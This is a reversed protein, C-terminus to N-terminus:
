EGPDGKSKDCKDKGFLAEVLWVFLPITLFVLWTPHWVHEAFGMWLYWAVAGTAYMVTLLGSAKKKLFADVLAYYVPISLFIVWSTSWAGINTFSIWLYIFVVLIPFPFKLWASKNSHWAMEGAKAEQWTDYRRGNVIVGEGPEWDVKTGDKGGESVHIGKWSVSVRDGTKSDKVQVGDKWSINVYDPEDLFEDSFGAKEEDSDDENAVEEVADEAEAAEDEEVSDNAYLLDDLSVDYLKALAILNDTDPSSESREWKSVAQRSVGLKDALGEQSLGAEKRRKALRDAIAVDM